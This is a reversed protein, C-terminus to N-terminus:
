SISSAHLLPENHSAPIIFSVCQKFYKM